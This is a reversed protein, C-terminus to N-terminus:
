ITNGKLLEHKYLDIIMHITINFADILLKKYLPSTFLTIKFIFVKTILYVYPRMQKPTCVNIVSYLVGIIHVTSTKLHFSKVTDHVM